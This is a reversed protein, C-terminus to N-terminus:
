FLYLLKPLFILVGVIVSLVASILVAGAAYDKAKKIRENHEMDVADSLSELSTNFLEAMFVIGIVMIILSWEIIEIRLVIGASIVLIAALLHIRANPENKLLSVLGIFAFKFSSTRSNASFGHNKM